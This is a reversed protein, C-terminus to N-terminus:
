AANAPLRAILRDAEWLERDASSEMTRAIVTAVADDEAPFVDSGIISGSADLEFIRYDRPTAQGKARRTISAIRRDNEMLDWLLRNPPGM